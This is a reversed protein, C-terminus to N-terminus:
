ALRRYAAKIDEPSATRGVGLVQYPDRMHAVIQQKGGERANGNAGAGTTPPASGRCGKNPYWNGRAM